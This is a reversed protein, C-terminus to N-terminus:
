LKAKKLKVYYNSDESLHAKAIQKAIGLNDTHETEVKMGAHLQRKNFRSDPINGKKFHLKCIKTM